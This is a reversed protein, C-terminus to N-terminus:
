EDGDAAGGARVRLGFSRLTRVIGAIREETPPETERMKYERGLREYKEVGMRHYPLISVECLNPLEAAFAVMDRLNEDDDNVGPIIPVRLIISHKRQSLLSLNRLILENSVGTLETHKRDDMLRLDYLFLDVYSRVSDLTAWSAFGCTDVATHIGKQKCARLSALLFDSQLLPEGGSFTVGGGSEDYFATDREIEEVIQEATMERGIM